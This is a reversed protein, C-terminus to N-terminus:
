LEQGFVQGPLVPIIQMKHLQRFEAFKFESGLDFKSVSESKHVM